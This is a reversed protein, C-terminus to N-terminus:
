KCKNSTKYATVKDSVAKPLQEPTISGAPFTAIEQGNGGFLFFAPVAKVHFANNIDTNAPDYVELRKVKLGSGRLSNELTAVAPEITKCAACKDWYFEILITECPTAPKFQAPLENAAQATLYNILAVSSLSLLLLALSAKAFTSTSIARFLPKLMITNM